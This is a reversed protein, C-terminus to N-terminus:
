LVFYNNLFNAFVFLSQYTLHTVMQFNMKLRRLEKCILMFPLLHGSAENIYDVPSHSFSPLLTHQHERM